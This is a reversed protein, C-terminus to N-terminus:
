RIATSIMTALNVGGGGPRQPDAAHPAWTKQRKCFNTCEWQSGMELIRYQSRTTKKKKQKQQKKKKRLDGQKVLYQEQCAYM